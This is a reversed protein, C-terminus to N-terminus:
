INSTFSQYFPDVLRNLRAKAPIAYWDYQRAQFLPLTVPTHVLFEWQHSGRDPKQFEDWILVYSFSNKVFLFHRVGFAVPNYQDKQYAETTDGAIYDWLPCTQFAVIKGNVGNGNGSLAQGRGDILITNHAISQAPSGEECRNGAGSDIILWQKEAFLTFSGRDSHDHFGAFSGCSFSVACADREPGSKSLLRGKDPCFWSEVNDFEPSESLDPLFLYAEFLSSYRIFRDKGFTRTGYKGVLLNWVKFLFKPDCDVAFILLGNVALHPISCRM